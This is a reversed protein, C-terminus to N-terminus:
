KKNKNIYHKYYAVFALIKGHVAIEISNRNFDYYAIKLLFSLLFTWYLINFYLLM